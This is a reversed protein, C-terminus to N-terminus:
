RRESSGARHPRPHGVRRRQAELTRDPGVTHTGPVPGAMPDCPVPQGEPGCAPDIPSARTRRAFRGALSGATWVAAGAALAALLMAGRMAPVRQERMVARVVSWREAASLARIPLIANGRVRHRAYAYVKRYYVGLGDMEHHIVSADPAFRIAGCGRRRAVEAVWLADSGRPLDVFRGIEDFLRRRTALNATYGYMCTPDDGDLVSADKAIEYDVLSRILGDGGARRPGCVIEISPDALATDIARLWGRAPECDPDTFAVIGGRCADIGRNRANYAGRRPEDHLRVRPHRRAIEVSRDTSGNGVLLIEYRDEPLDQTELAHLCRDLTRGADRMPVVVSIFAAATPGAVPQPTPSM